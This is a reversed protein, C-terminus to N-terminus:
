LSPLSNAPRCCKSKRLSHTLQRSLASRWGENSAYNRANL